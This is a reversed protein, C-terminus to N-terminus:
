RKRRQRLRWSWWSKWLARNTSRVAYERDLSHVIYNGEELDATITGPTLTISNALVTQGTQTRIGTQFRVLVPEPERDFEPDAEIGGPGGQDSGGGPVGCVKLDERHM